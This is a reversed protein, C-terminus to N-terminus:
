TKYKLVFHSYVYLSLHILHHYINNDYLSLRYPSQKKEGYTNRLRMVYNPIIPAEGGCGVAARDM